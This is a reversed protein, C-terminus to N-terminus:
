AGGDDDGHASGLLEALRDCESRAIIEVDAVSMDLTDAVTDISYGLSALTTVHEGTRQPGITRGEALAERVQGDPDPDGQVDDDGEGMLEGMSMSQGHLHERLADYAPHDTAPDVDAEPPLDDPDTPM